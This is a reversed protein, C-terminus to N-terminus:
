RDQSEDPLGRDRRISLQELFRDLDPGKLHAPSEPDEDPDTRTMKCTEAISRPSALNTQCIETM